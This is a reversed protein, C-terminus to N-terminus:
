LAESSKSTAKMEKEIRKMEGPFCVPCVGHSVKTQDVPKVLGYIKKCVYCLRIM